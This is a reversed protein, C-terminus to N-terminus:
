GEKLVRLKEKDGAFISLELIDLEKKRTIYLQAKDKLERLRIDMNKERGESLISLNRLNHDM